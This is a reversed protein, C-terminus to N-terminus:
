GETKGAASKLLLEKILCGRGIEVVDGQSMGVPLGLMAELMIKDCNEVLGLEDYGETGGVSTAVDAEVLEDTSKGTTTSASRSTITKIILAHPKM